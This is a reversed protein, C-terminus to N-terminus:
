VVSGGVQARLAAIEADIDAQREQLKKLKLQLRHLEMTARSVHGRIETDQSRNEKLQHTLDGLRRVLQEPAQGNFDFRRAPPAPPLPLRDDNSHLTAAATPAGVPRPEHDPIQLPHGCHSCPCELGAGAMDVVLEGGCAPCNFVIDRETIVLLLKKQGVPEPEHEPHSSAM